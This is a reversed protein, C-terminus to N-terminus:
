RDHDRFVELKRAPQLYNISLPGARFGWVCLCLRISYIRFAPFRPGVVVKPIRPASIVVEPIFLESESNRIDEQASRFSM